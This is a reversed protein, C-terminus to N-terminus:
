YSLDQAKKHANRMATKFVEELNGQKLTNLAEETVGGKSTVMNRLETPSDSSNLLLSSAGHLMYKIMKEAGVRSIGKEELDTILIRALEFVFAPGSGCHPTVLDIQDENQFIFLEGSVSFLEEVFSQESLDLGPSFYLLQVGKGIKSPTNPMVRIVKSVKLKEGIAKVNKGAMMSIIVANNNLHPSLMEALDDFQQPKCGILYFQSEPIEAITKFAKGNASEALELARKYTPTFTFVDLNEFENCFSTVLASAMNGCGLVALKIKTDKKM